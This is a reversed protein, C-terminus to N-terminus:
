FDFYSSAFFCYFRGFFQKLKKKCSNLKKVVLVRIENIWGLKWLSISGFRKHKIKLQEINFPLDFGQFQFRLLKIKTALFLIWNKNQIEDWRM